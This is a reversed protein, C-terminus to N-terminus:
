IKWGRGYCSIFLIFFAMYGLCIMIILPYAPSTRLLQLKRLFNTYNTFLKYVARRLNGYRSLLATKANATM